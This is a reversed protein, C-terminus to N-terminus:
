GMLKKIISDMERGKKTEDEPGAQLFIGTRKKSEDGKTFVGVTSM